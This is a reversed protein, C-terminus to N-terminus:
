EKFLGAYLLALGSVMTGLSVAALLQHRGSQAKGQAAAGFVIRFSVYSIVMLMIGSVRVKDGSNLSMSAHAHPILLSFVDFAKAQLGLKQELTKQFLGQTANFREVFAQVSDRNRFDAESIQFSASALAEAEGSKRVAMAIFSTSEGAIQKEITQLELELGLRAHEFFVPDEGAEWLASRLSEDGDKVSWGDDQLMELASEVGERSSEYQQDIHEAIVSAPGRQSGQGSAQDSKLESKKEAVQQNSESSAWLVPPFILSAVTWVCLLFRTGAILKELSSSIKAKIM